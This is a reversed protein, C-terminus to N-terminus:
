RQCALGAIAVVVALIAVLMCGTSSPQSAGQPKPSDGFTFHRSQLRAVIAERERVRRDVIAVYKEPLAPHMMRLNDRKTLDYTGEADPTVGAVREYQEWLLVDEDPLFEPLCRLVRELMPPTDDMLLGASTDPAVRVLAVRGIPDRTAALVLAVANEIAEPSAPLRSQRRAHAGEAVVDVYKWTLAVARRLEDHSVPM